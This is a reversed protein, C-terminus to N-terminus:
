HQLHNCTITECLSLKTQITKILELSAKPDLTIAMSRDLVEAIMAEAYTVLQENTM